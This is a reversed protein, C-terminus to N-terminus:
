LSLGRQNLDVSPLTSFCRGAFAFRRPVNLVYAPGAVQVATEFAARRADLLMPLVESRLDLSHSACTLVGRTLLDTQDFISLADADPKGWPLSQSTSMYNSVTSRSTTRLRKPAAKPSHWRFARLRKM